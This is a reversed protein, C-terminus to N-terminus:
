PQKLLLLRQTRAFRGKSLFVKMFYEKTMVSLTKPAIGGIDGALIM